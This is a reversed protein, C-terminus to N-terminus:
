REPAGQTLGWRTIDGPLVPRRQRLRPMVLLLAHTSDRPGRYKADHARECGRLTFSGAPSPANTRCGDLCQPVLCVFAEAGGELQLPPCCLALGLRATVLRTAQDTKGERTCGERCGFSEESNTVATCGKLEFTMGVSRKVHAAGTDHFV